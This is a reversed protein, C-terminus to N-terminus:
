DRACLPFNRFIVCLKGGYERETQPLWGPLTECPPCQFNGFEEVRVAAELKGRVHPPKAGSKGGSSSAGPQSAVEARKARFLVTGATVAICAAAAIIIFTLYRKM